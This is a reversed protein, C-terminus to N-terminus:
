SCLDTLHQRLADFGAVSWGRAARMATVHDLTDVHAPHLQAPDVEARVAELAPHTDDSDPPIAALQLTAITLRHIAFRRLRYRVRVAMGVGELRGQRVWMEALALRAEADNGTHSALRIAEVFCAISREDDGQREALVGLETWSAARIATSEAHEIARQLHAHAADMDGNATAWNAEVHAAYGHFGLRNLGDVAWHIWAEGDLDGRWRGRVARDAAALVGAHTEPGIAYARALIERREEWDLPPDAYTSLTLRAWAADHPDSCGAAMSADAQEVAARLAATTTPLLAGASVSVTVRAPHDDDAGVRGLADVLAERLRRAEPLRGMHALARTGQVLLPIAREFAGARALFAGERGPESAVDAWAMRVARPDLPGTCLTARLAPDLFRVTGADRDVWLVRRTVLMRVVRTPWDLGFARLVEVSEARDIEEDGLALCQLSRRATDSLADVVEVDAVREQLDPEGRVAWGDETDVLRDEAAWKQLVELVPGLRGASWESLLLRVPSTLPFWLALRERLTAPTPPPVVLHVGRGPREGVVILLLPCGEDIRELAKELELAGPVSRRICTVSAPFRFSLHGAPLVEALGCRGAADEFWDVLEQASEEGELVVMAPRGGTVVGGLMSWLVDKQDDLGLVPPRHVHFLGTGELQQWSPNMLERWDPLEVVMPEETPPGPFSGSSELGFDFTIEGAEEIAVPVGAPHPDPDLSAIRMRVLRAHAPRHVPTKDLLEGLIAPLGSPITFRPVLDPLPRELHARAVEEPEGDWPPAGAVLEWLMCGVAYLDAEIGLPRSRFREPAMYAPTGSPRVVNGISAQLGFDSLRAREGDLLVNAPKIDLHLLGAAHAAALGDLVDCIIASARDWDLSDLQDHVSGQALPMALWPTEPDVGLQTAAAPGVRGADVVPVINPHRLRAVAAIEEEFMAVARPDTLTLLKVAHVDDTWIAGMGGAGVQRRVVFPGIPVPSDSPLRTIRAVAADREPVEGVELIERTALVSIGTQGAEEARSAIRNMAISWYYPVVGLRRLRPATRLLEAELGTFDGGEAQVMWDVVQSTRAAEGDPLLSRVEIATQAIAPDGALLQVWSEAWRVKGLAAPVESRCVASARAAARVAEDYRETEALMTALGSLTQVRLWPTGWRDIFPVARQLQRIAHPSSLPLRVAISRARALAHEFGAEGVCQEAREAWVAAQSRAGNEHVWFACSGLTDALDAPEGLREVDRILRECAALLGPDRRYFAREARVFSATARLLPIDPEELREVLGAETSRRASPLARAFVDLAQHRVSEQTARALALEAAELARDVAATWRWAHSRLVLAPADDRSGVAELVAQWDRVRWAARARELTM